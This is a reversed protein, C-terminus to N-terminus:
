TKQTHKGLIVTPFLQLGDNINWNSKSHKACMRLALPSNRMGPSITGFLFPLGFAHFLAYQRGLTSKREFPSWKVKAGLIKIVPLIKRKITSAEESSPNEVAKKLMSTFEGKNVIEMLETTRPDGSDVRLSVAKNTQTRM